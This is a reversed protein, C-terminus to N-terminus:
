NQVPLFDLQLFKAANEAETLNRGNLHEGLEKEQVCHLFERFKVVMLEERPRKNSGLVSYNPKLLTAVVDAPVDSPEEPMDLLVRLCPREKLLPLVEYYKLGEVLQDYCSQRQIFLIANQVFADKNDMSVPNPLGELQYRWSDCCEVAQELEETTLAQDVKKLAERLEMDAVDDPTVKLQFIHGTLLYDVVLPSLLAPPEGGQVIITSMMQGITRYVGNQVHSINMRPTFGNLSEEFAGSEKFIAKVLLRFFERRPGGLDEGDENTGEDSAFTVYLLDTCETFKRRSFQRLATTWVNGRSIYIPRYAETVVRESHAKVIGTMEEISLSEAFRSDQLAQVSEELLSRRIAEEIAEDEEIDIPIFDAFHNMAENPGRQGQLDMGDDSPPASAEVREQRECHESQARSPAHRQTVRRRQVVPSEFDSDDSLEVSCNQAPVEMEAMIYLCTSSCVSAVEKGGWPFNSTVKPILKKCGKITSLFQFPLSQHESLGFAGSFIATIEARVQDESWETSFSIKGVLGATALRTRTEGRPIIFVSVGPSFTLCVVDKTCTKVNRRRLYGSQARNRLPISPLPASRLSTVTTAFNSTGSASPVAPTSVTASTSQVPPAVGQLAARVAAIVVRKIDLVGLSGAMGAQSQRQSQREIKAARNSAPTTENPIQINELYKAKCKAVCKSNVNLNLM